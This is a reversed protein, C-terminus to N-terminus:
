VAPGTRSGSQPRRRGGEPLGEAMCLTAYGTFTGVELIMQPRIMTVLMKLLRGQIHGSAMRPNLLKLNTERYIDRLLASEPGIHASIYEELLDEGTYGIGQGSTAM